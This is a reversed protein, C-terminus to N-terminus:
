AEQGAPQIGDDGEAAILNAYKSLKAWMAVCPKRSVALTM